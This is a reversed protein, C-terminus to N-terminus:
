IERCCQIVGRPIMEPTKEEEEEEMVELTSMEISEDAPRDLRRDRINKDMDSFREKIFKDHPRPLM